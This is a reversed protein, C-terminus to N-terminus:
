SAITSVCTRTGGSPTFDYCSGLNLGDNDADAVGLTTVTIAQCQTGPALAVTDGYIVGGGPASVPTYTHGTTWGPPVFALHFYHPYASNPPSSASPDCATLQVFRNAPLYSAVLVDAPEPRAERIAVLTVVACAAIKRSTSTM